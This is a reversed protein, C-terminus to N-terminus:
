LAIGENHLSEHRLFRIAISGEPTSVGLWCLLGATGYASMVSSSLLLFIYTYIYQIYLWSTSKIPRYMSQHHVYADDKAVWTERRGRISICASWVTSKACNDRFKDEERRQENQTWTFFALRASFDFDSLFLRLPSGASAAITSHM